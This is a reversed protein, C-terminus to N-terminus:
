TGELPWAVAPAGPAGRLTAEFSADPFFIGCHDGIALNLDSSEVNKATKNSTRYSRRTM